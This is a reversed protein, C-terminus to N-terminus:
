LGIIPSTGRFTRNRGCPEHSERIRIALPSNLTSRQFTQVNSRQFSSGLRRFPSTFADSIVDRLAKNRECQGIRYRKSLGEVRIAIDTM